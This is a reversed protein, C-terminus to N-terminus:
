HSSTRRIPWSGTLFPPSMAMREDIVEEAIREHNLDLVFRVVKPSDTPRLGYPTWDEIPMWGAYTAVETFGARRVEAIFDAIM